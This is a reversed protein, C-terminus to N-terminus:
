VRHTIRLFKTVLNEAAKFSNEAFTWKASNKKRALIEDATLREPQM